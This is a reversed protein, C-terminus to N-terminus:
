CLTFWGPKIHFTNQWSLECSSRLKDCESAGPQKREGYKALALDWDAERRGEVARRRWKEGFNKHRVLLPEGSPFGLDAQAIEQQARWSYEAHHNGRERRHIIVPLTRLV